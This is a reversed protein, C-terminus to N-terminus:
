KTKEKKKTYSRKRPVTMVDTKYHAIRVDIIDLFVQRMTQNFYACATKFDRIKDEPIDKILYDAM